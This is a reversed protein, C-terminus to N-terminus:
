SVWYCSRGGRSEHLRKLSVPRREKLLGLLLKHNTVLDFPRGFNEQNRLHMFFGEKELQSYNRESPNLTRSSYGIPRERGDSMEAELGFHSADCALTLKLSSDLHTLCKDYTLFKKCAKFAKAQKTGWRWPGRRRLLCYLLTSLKPLCKSCFTLMGLYAKLTTVSTPKPAEKMARVQHPLTSTIVRGHVQV